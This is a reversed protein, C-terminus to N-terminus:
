MKPRFLNEFSTLEVSAAQKVQGRLPSTRCLNPDFNRQSNSLLQSIVFQKNRSMSQDGNTLTFIRFTYLITITHFEVQINLIPGNATHLLSRSRIENNKKWPFALLLGLHSSCPNITVWVHQVSVFNNNVCVTGAAIVSIMPSTSSDANPETFIM